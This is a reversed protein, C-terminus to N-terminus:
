LRLLADQRTVVMAASAKAITSVVSRDLSTLFKQADIQGEFMAKAADVGQKIHTSELTTYLFHSLPSHKLDFHSASTRGTDLLHLVSSAHDATDSIDVDPLFDELRQSAEGERPIEGMFLALPADGGTMEALAELIAIALLKIGLYERAITLNQHTLAVMQQFVNESPVSNYRHFVNDPNLSGLFGEVKQLAQRYERISYVAGLRLAVNTEPLLKWTNDLFNRVDPDAFNAVDTNAFMVARQIMEEIERATMSLTYTSNMTKLRKELLDAYSEGQDNLGRFPITAEIFVSIKVLVHEPLLTELTTKAVLASLFENLGGFPSLQQGVEYGFVDCVLRLLRDEPPIAASFFVKGEKEDIFSGVLTRIEPPFGKDVQYYVIDHFLAALTQIPDSPESLGFVHDPTHFSRTPAAMVKHVLIALQELNESAIRVQLQGFAGQFLTIIQHLPGRRM